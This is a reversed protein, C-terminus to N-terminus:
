IKPSKGGEPETQKFELAIFQVAVPNVEGSAFYARM